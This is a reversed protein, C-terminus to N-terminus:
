ETKFAKYVIVKSNNSDVGISFSESISENLSLQYLNKSKTDNIEYKLGKSTLSISDDTCFISIQQGRYSSFMRSYISNGVKIDRSDLVIFEGFDTIMRIRIIIKMDLLLFVNSITHDDRKGVAGLITAEKCRNNQAWFIAKSLDNYNQNEIKLVRDGFENPNSLSDMDGIILDPTYGNKKALNAGGDCCLLFNGKNMEELARSDTPFVGNCLITIKDNILKKKM